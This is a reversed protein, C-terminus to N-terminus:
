VLPRPPGVQWPWGMGAAWGLVITVLLYFAYHLLGSGFDLDLSGLAALAGAILFPPVVVLWIWLEGSQAFEHVPTLAFLGWLAAYVLALIGSRVNLPLGRYPELEDNRLVEYGAIVLPLSVVLLGAARLVISDRVLGRGALAAGFVVVVGGAIAAAIGPRFRTERRAIPKLVMEGTASRGGSSFMEGGHIKVEEQKPPIKIPTKCSPCPGTRGAFQDSVQFRKRCGPCVVFIAMRSVREPPTSVAGDARLKACESLSDLAAPSAGTPEAEGRNGGAPPM